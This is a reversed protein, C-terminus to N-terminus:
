SGALWILPLKAPAAYEDVCIKVSFV